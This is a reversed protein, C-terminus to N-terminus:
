CHGEEEEEEKESDVDEIWCTNRTPMGSRRKKRKKRKKEIFGRKPRKQQSFGRKGRKGCFCSM